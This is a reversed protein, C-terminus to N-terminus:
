VLLAGLMMMLNQCAVDQRFFELEKAPGSAGGITVVSDHGNELAKSRALPAQIDTVEEGWFVSLQDNWSSNADKIWPMRPKKDRGGVM